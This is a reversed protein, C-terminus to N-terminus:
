RLGLLRANRHVIVSIHYLKRYWEKSLPRHDNAGCKSAFVDSLLYVCVGLCVSLEARSFYYGSSSNYMSPSGFRPVLCARPSEGGGWGGVGVPAKGLLSEEDRSLYM